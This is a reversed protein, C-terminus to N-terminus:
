EEEQDLCLELMCLSAINEAPVNSDMFADRVYSVLYVVIRTKFFDYLVYVCIGCLPSETDDIICAMLRFVLGGEAEVASVGEM